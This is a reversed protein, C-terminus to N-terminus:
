IKRFYNLLFEISEDLPVKPKWKMKDYFKKSNAIQFSVDARRLLKKNLRTKIKIFSKKKLKNLFSKVSMFSKGGINYIEGFRGKTAALYYAIMADKLDIYNRISNLNGHELFNKKGKEIMAVQKAFATQFLFKGRPNIYSFMRTIIIKLGYCNFYMQSLLDQISKSASYPNVPRLIQKESIPSEFKKVKGYVESSSCILITPDIKSIRIAELLNLTIAFNNQIVRMPEDFSKRVRADSAFHVVLDPKIKKLQRLIGRYNNLDLKILKLKQQYKKKLYNSYGTRRIFGYVAPLKKKDLLYEAFYSGGAGAIGTILVKKFKRM